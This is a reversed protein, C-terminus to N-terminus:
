RRSFVVAVEQAGEPLAVVEPEETGGILPVSAAEIQRGLDIVRATMPVQARVAIQGEARVGRAYLVGGDPGTWPHFWATNFVGRVSVIPEDPEGPTMGHILQRLTAVAPTERTWTREAREVNASINPGADVFLYGAGTATRNAYCFRSPERCPEPPQGLPLCHVPWEGEYLLVKECGATATPILAPRRRSIREAFSEPRPNNWMPHRQWLRAALPTPQLHMDPRSPRFEVASWLAAVAACALGLRRTAARSSTAAQQLLPVALPLLWMAYRSIDPSGAHNQDLPQSVVYLLALAALATTALFPERLRTLEHRALLYGATAVALVFPPFRTIVGMNVDTFPFLLELLGPFRAPATATLPSPIGLRWLYYIPPLLALAAAVALAARWRPCMLRSPREITGWVAFLSVVLLLGPNQSAAVGMLVLAMGPRTTWLLLASALSTFILVDASPKDIWWVIPSFLLISTWAATRTAAMLWALGTLLLVHLLVFAWLPSAGVAMTLWVLPTALLAYLWFHPLDQQGDRGVLDPMRLHPAAEPDAMRTFDDEIRHLEAPSLAPGGGRALNLALAVHEDGHGVRSPNAQLLFILLWSCLLAFVAVPRVPTM